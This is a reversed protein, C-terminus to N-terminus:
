FINSCFGIKGLFVKLYQCFITLIEFYQFSYLLYGDNYIKNCFLLWHNCLLINIRINKKGKKLSIIKYIVWMYLPKNVLNTM